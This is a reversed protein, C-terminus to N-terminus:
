WEIVEGSMLDYFGCPKDIDVSEIWDAFRVAALRPSVDADVAAIETKLKGPHVAFVRLGEKRFEQDLCASLMNLACKAIQYSYIGRFQGATTRGISGWRSTVNAVMARKSNRLFPLAARFCRFAGICHVRFLNELDEPETQALGRLKKINGANNILIDLVGGSSELVSTIRCEVDTAAVDAIIPHCSSGYASQLQQAVAPDRVLPLLVYGRAGFVETMERGLGRGAGTILVTPMM